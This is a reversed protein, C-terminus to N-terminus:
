CDWELDRKVVASERANEVPLIFGKFGQHQAQIAIPLLGKIPRLNGDLSLEGMIIYKDMSLMAFWFANTLIFKWAKM